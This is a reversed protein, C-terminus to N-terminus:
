YLTKLEEIEENKIDSKAKKIIPSQWGSILDKSLTPPIYTLRLYNGSDLPTKISKQL